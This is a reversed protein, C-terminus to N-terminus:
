YFEVILISRTWLSDVEIGRARTDNCLMGLSGMNCLWKSVITESELWIGDFRSIGRYKVRDPNVLTYREWM